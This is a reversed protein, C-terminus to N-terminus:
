PHVLTTQYSVPPKLSQNLLTVLVTIQRAGTVTVGGVTPDPTIQWRRNFALMDATAAPNTAGPPSRSRAM